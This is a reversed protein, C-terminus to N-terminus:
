LKSLILQNLSVGEDSAKLTLDHHLESPIRLTLNGKFKRMGYSEPLISGSALLKQILTETEQIIKQLAKAATDSFASLAPFELCTGSFTKKKNDWEIRYTYKEASIELTTKKKSKALKFKRTKDKEIPKSKDPKKSPKLSASKAGAKKAPKTRAPVKSKIPKKRM